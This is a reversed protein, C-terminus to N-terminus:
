QYYMPEMVLVVAAAIAVAAATSGAIYVAGSKSTATTGEGARSHTGESSREGGDGSDSEEDCWPLTSSGSEGEASAGST